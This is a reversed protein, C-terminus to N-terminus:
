AGAPQGRAFLVDARVANALDDRMAITLADIFQQKLQNQREGSLARAAVSARFNAEWALVPDLRGFDVRGPIVRIRDFGAEELACYCRDETGLPESPDKVDVGFRAACERFVRGASPSGARMTSFAVVGDAKLLRRWQQLARAVPMYLLGASCVVVDFSSAPLEHLDSVDAELTDVNQLGEASALARAQELMRPSIDVALVRGAPGIRHAIAMAAFGTGAGADMVRDGARLPTVAVLQEAYRRHWDDTVYREARANFIAAVELPDIVHAGISAM